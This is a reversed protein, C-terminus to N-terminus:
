DAAMQVFGCNGRSDLFLRIIYNSSLSSPNEAQHFYQTYKNNEPDYRCLGGNYTAIWIKGQPDVLLDYITSSSLGTSDGSVPYYTTFEYGDYKNLGDETGLQCIEYSRVCKKTTSATDYCRVCKLM